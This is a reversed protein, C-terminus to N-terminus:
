KEVRVEVDLTDADQLGYRKRLMEEAMIELVSPGWHNTSTRAILAPIRCPGIVLCCCEFCLDEDRGDKRDERRLTHDPRLRHPSGLRVNLTGKKLNRYGTVKQIESIEWNVADGAGTEIQGSLTKKVMRQCASKDM